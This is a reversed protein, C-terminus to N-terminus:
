QHLNAATEQGQASHAATLVAAYVGKRRNQRIRLLERTMTFSDRLPHIQSSRAEHYWDIPVEEIHYGRLHAIVLWEVDFAWGDITQSRCLELALSRRLVKFGCQTDAIGSLLLLRVLLNFFRGMIHRYVPENYRRSGSAERSGIAVDCRAFVQANFRAFQKIPMALDADALAVFQGRAALVGAKVAGGKGRHPADVLRLAPWREAGAKVVQATGDSSGDNIVLVEIAIHNAEVFCQVEALTKPLRQEENFAPILISLVPEDPAAETIPLDM